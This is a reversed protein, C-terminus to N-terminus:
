RAYRSLSNVTKFIQMAEEGILDVLM